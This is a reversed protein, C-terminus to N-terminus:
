LCVFAVVILHPLELVDFLSHFVFYTCSINSARKSLIISSTNFFYRHFILSICILPLVPQDGPAAGEQKPTKPAGGGQRWRAADMVSSSLVCYVGSGWGGGGGIGRVGKFGWVCDKM